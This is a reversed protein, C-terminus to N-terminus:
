GIGLFFADHHGGSGGGFLGTKKFVDEYPVARDTRSKMGVVSQIVGPEEFKLAHEIRAARAAQYAEGGAGEAGAPKAEGPNAAAGGTLSADSNPAAGSNAAPAGGAPAGGDTNAEPM